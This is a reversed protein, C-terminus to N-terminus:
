EDEEKAPEVSVSPKVEDFPVLEIDDPNIGGQKLIGQVNGETMHVIDLLDAVSAIDPGNPNAKNYDKAMVILLELLTRASKRLWVFRPHDPIKGQQLQGIIQKRTTLGANLRQDQSSKMGAAKLFTEVIFKERENM